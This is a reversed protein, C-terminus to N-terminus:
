FVLRIGVNFSDDLEYDGNVPPDEDLRTEFWRYGAYLEAGPTLEIGVRAWLDTLSKADGFTTINPAYFGQVGLSIPTNGPIIYRAHGGLALAQVDARPRDIRVFYAQAGLGFSWPQQGAPVGRVQFGLGLNFDDEDNFFVDANLDAGGQGIAASDMFFSLNAADNGLAADVGAGQAPGAAL